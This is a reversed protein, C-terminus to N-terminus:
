TKFLCDCIAQGTYYDCGCTCWWGSVGCCSMPCDAGCDMPRNGNVTRAMITGPVFTVVSLALLTASIFRVLKM